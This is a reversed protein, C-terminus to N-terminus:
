FRGQVSKGVSSFQQSTGADGKFMAREKSALRNRQLKAQADNKIFENEGAELGYNIKEEGYISSLKQSTPLVEAIKGYDLQAQAYTEGMKAFEAARAGTTSFGYQNAAAGIEAATIKQKLLPLSEDPALFYSILDTKNLEPYFEKFNKLVAPDANNIRTSVLDIRNMFEPGSIDNGIWTAFKAQNQKADTTLLNNLGYAKIASSYANELDIYAGESLVNLGAKQRAVNGAFRDLYPKNYAPDYKIKSLVTDYTDGQSLLTRINGSLGELGWSALTSTLRSLANEDVATTNTGGTSRPTVTGTKPNYVQGTNYAYDDLVSGGQGTSAPANYTSAAAAQAWPTNSGFQSAAAIGALTSTNVSPAKPTAAPAPAPAASTILDSDRM